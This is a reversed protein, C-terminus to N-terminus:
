YKRMFGGIVLAYSVGKPCSCGYHVFEFAECQVVNIKHLSLKKPQNLIVEVYILLIVAHDTIGPNM